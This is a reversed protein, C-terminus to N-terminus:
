QQTDRFDKVIMELLKRALVFDKRDEDSFSSQYEELRLLAGDALDSVEVPLLIQKEVLRELLKVTLTMGVLAASDFGPM